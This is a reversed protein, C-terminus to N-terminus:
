CVQQLQAPVTLLSSHVFVLRSLPGDASHMWACLLLFLTAGIMVDHYTQSTIFHDKLPKKLIRLQRRWLAFYGLVYGM